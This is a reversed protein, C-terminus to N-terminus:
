SAAEILEPSFEDVSRIGLLAMAVALERQFVDLLSAVAHEGGAALAYVWPRGVLVGNAGLALAKALDIGNRIGGDLLIEAQDGLAASVARLKTISSAVGDLQRGGHNSVVVGNAGSEIAARADDVEL